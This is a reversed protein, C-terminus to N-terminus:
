PLIGRAVPPMFGISAAHFVLNPFQDRIRSVILRRAKTSYPAILRVTAPPRRLNQPGRRFRCTPELNRNTPILRDLSFHHVAKDGLCEVTHWRRVQREATVDVAVVEIVPRFVEIPAVSLRISPISRAVPRNRVPRSITVRPDGLFDRSGDPSIASAARNDRCFGPYMVRGDATNPATLTPRVESLTPGMVGTRCSDFFAQLNM